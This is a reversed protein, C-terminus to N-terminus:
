RKKPGREVIRPVPLYRTFFEEVETEGSSYKFVRRVEVDFGRSGEQVVQRGGPPLGPNIEYQTQPAEFNFPEGMVANVEVDTNGYFTVTISTDTYSTDMYIGADSDNIFELDPAPDSVTAERGMPYRDIYYSHAKYEVFEYGGFFIANFLTTAFQSVGGGVQEVYEGNLIAPAKIFGKEVTRPGVFGNLSFSEGPEVVAGDLIEAVRHINEVRPECCAHYTTFTSVQEDIDLARADATSFEPPSASGPLTARRDSDETAVQVLQAATKKASFHFGPRGEIIEVSGGVLEFSADVPGTELDSAEDGIVKEVRKVGAELELNASDGDEVLAVTLMGAIEKPSVTLVEGDRTLRIPASIAERAEDLVRDVDDVDTRAEVPQTPLTIKQPGASLLARTLTPRLEEIDVGAGAAPDIRTIATGKFRLDGERPPAVVDAAATTLHDIIQESDIDQAPTVTITGAFATLHDRLAALPNAQRGRDLIAEVTAEVDLSYGLRAKTTAISAEPESQTAPRVLTVTQESREGALQEVLDTLEGESLGGAAVGAVEIGPLSGPRTLRLGALTVACFLLVFVAITVGLRVPRPVALWGRRRLRTGREPRPSTM